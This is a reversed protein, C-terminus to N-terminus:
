YTQLRALMKGEVRVAKAQGGKKKQSSQNQCKEVEMGLKEGGSM